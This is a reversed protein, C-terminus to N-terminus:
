ACWRAISSPHPPLPPPLLWPPSAARHLEGVLPGRLGRLGRLARPAPPSSSGTAQGGIVVDCGSVSLAVVLLLLLLAMVRARLRLPRLRVAMTSSSELMTLEAHDTTRAHHPRRAWVVGGTASLQYRTHGSTLRSVVHFRGATGPRGTSTGVYQPTDLACETHHSSPPHAM